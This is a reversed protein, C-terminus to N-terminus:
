QSLWKLTTELELVQASPKSWDPIRVLSAKVKREELAQYFEEAQPDGASALVLTPTKWNSAFYLPSHKTYQGPDDWPFAGMWPAARPGALAFDVIPRRAVVAAFRDTHGLLWAALLGGRVAIRASDIGGKAVVSDVAALLDDADDGPYRTPLLRGFEEGYGPTGRPNVRLVVWGHAAFIQAALSFEPGFMRRPNDAIDLLLPYKRAADFHPPRVIWAQISKGASEFHVEEPAAVERAAFMSAMPAALATATPPPMDAPFSVLEVAHATTRVAAARGNDALTFGRLREGGHTVQRVTSDNRSAYVYTAGADDALFYITRSDSSWHPDVPDRDLTGALRKERRGDANMVNLTRVSYSRLASDASIWAIKSGDPSPLPDECRDTGNTLGRASGGDLRIQYIAGDSSAILISKGDHMWVPAGAADFDPGSVARPKSGSLSATFLATRRHSPPALWPLIDPTAWAPAAAATRATFAISQGDASWAIALPAGDIVSEQASDVAMVHIGGRGSIWAIRSGDPSWRPSRDRWPGDTLRRSQKGDITVLVLNACVADTARDNWEDLYMVRRGDPSIRPDRPTHWNWLDSPNWGADGGRAGAACLLLAVAARLAIM